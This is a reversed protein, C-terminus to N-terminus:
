PKAEPEAPEITLGGGATGKITVGSITVSGGMRSTAIPNFQNGTVYWQDVVIAGIVVGVGMGSIGASIIWWM